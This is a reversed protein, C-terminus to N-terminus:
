GAAVEAVIVPVVATALELGDAISLEGIEKPIMDMGEHAAKLKEAFVADSSLKAMFASLDDFNIGDKALKAVYFGLAIAGIAAEKTEKVGFEGAM